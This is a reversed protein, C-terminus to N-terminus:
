VLSRINEHAGQALQRSSTRTSVPLDSKKQPQGTTLFCCKSRLKSHTEGLAHLLLTRCAWCPLCELMQTNAAFDVPSPM